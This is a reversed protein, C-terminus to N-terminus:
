RQVLFETFYIEEVGLEPARQRLADLLNQKLKEKGEPTEVEDAKAKALVTLITDRVLAVPSAEGPTAPGSLGLDVGVRLYAKQDPDALNLVFTELHMVSKVKREAEPKEESEGAAVYWGAAIAAVVLVGIGAFIWGAQSKAAPVKAAAPPSTVEPKLDAVDAM